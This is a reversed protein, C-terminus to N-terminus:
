RTVVYLYVFSEGDANEGEAILRDNRLKFGKLREPVEIRGLFDGGPGFLDFATPAAEATNVLAWLRGSRDLAVGRAAFRHKFERSIMKPPDFPIKTGDPLYRLRHEFRESETRSLRVAPLHTRRWTRTVSGNSDLQVIRYQTDPATVVPHGDSTVTAACYACSLARDRDPATLGYNLFRGISAGLVQQRLEVRRFSVDTGEIYSGARLYLVSDRWVMGLASAGLLPVEEEVTLAANWITIRGNMPDAVAIRGEPSAELATPGRLEGPGGGSRAVRRVSDGAPDFILFQKALGDLVVVRNGPLLDYDSVDTLVGAEGTPTTYARTLHPLSPDYPLTGADRSRGECAVLLGALM